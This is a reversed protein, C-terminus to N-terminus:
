EHINVGIGIIDEFFDPYSKSVCECQDIVVREKSAIAAVAAAMVLRHDGCPDFYGGTLKSGNIEMCDNRLIIDAGLKSLGRYLCLARDSEKHQLRELGTIYSIGGCNCALIALPLVLDPHEAADFRFSHLNAKSVTISGTGINIGAGCANLIDLVAVDGQSSTIDLGTIEVSGGIAGAVMMFASGSWDGEVAYEEACYSQRGKIFFREYGSHEVAIGFKDLVSLTMDIYPKSKLNSVIIETDDAIVPLAILLGSLFQSTISGDVHAVGGRIPGKIQIPLHGDRTSCEAGLERLPAEIMKHPRGALSKAGSLTIEKDFLAAIPSFMRVCFGSEGCDLRSLHSESGRRVIIREPTKEIVAGLGEAMHMASIADTCFSPNLIATGEKSLFAAAIARQTM